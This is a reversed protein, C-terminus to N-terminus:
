NRDTTTATPIANEITTTSENQSSISPFADGLSNKNNTTINREIPPTDNRVPTTTTNEQEETMRDKSQKKNEANKKFKEQDEEHQKKASNSEGLQEENLHVEALSTSEDDCTSKDEHQKSKNSSQGM